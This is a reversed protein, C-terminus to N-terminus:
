RTRGYRVLEYHYRTGGQHCYKRQLVSRPLAGGMEVNTQQLRHHGGTKTELPATKKISPGTAKKIRGYMGIINGTDSTRTSNCGTTTPTIGLM